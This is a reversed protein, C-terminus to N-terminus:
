VHTAHSICLDDAAEQLATVLYLLRGFFFEFFEVELSMTHTHARPQEYM